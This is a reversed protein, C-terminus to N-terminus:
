RKQNQAYELLGGSDVIIKAFPSMPRIQFKKRTADIYVFGQEIDLSILDLANVRSNFEEGVTLVPLGLNICNRYFIRAFSQALVCSLGAKKLALAAAERSSGTGFNKGAVIIDNCQVEEHFRPEYDVFCIEAWKEDPMVGIRDLFRGPIIEDTSINDGFIWVRGKIM